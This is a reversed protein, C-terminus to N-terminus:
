VVSHKGEGEPQAGPPGAVGRGAQEARLVERIKASREVTSFPKPLFPTEPDLVGRHAIANDTHGSTYLVRLGPLMRELVSQLLGEWTEAESILQLMELM